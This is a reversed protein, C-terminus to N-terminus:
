DFETGPPIGTNPLSKPYYDRGARHWADAWAHDFVYEGQSHSKVYMPVIGTLENGCELALHFPQWGTRRTTSGSEELAALFEYRLFPDHAVGAGPNACRDWERASIEGISHLIRATTAM